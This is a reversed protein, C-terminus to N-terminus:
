RVEVFVREKNNKAKEIESFFLNHHLLLTPVLTGAGILLSSLFSLNHVITLITLLGASFLVLLISILFRVYLSLKM